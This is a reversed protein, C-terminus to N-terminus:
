SGGIGCLPLNVEAAIHCCGAFTAAAMREARFEILNNSRDMAEAVTDPVISIPGRRVDVMSTAYTWQSGAVAPGYPGSGNYGADPVIITDMITLIYKGERRLVDFESWVSALQPTCHIMGRQGCNCSALAEELCELAQLAESPGNTVVDSAESALYRNATWHKARALTGTWFEHAIHSSECALLLRQARGKFDRSNFATGSCRDGEWVAFPQFDVVAPTADIDKDDSGCPDLVGGGGSCSEPQFRIGNAMHDDWDGPDRAMSVLSLVPPVAPPATVVVGVGPNAM